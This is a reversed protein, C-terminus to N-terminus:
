TSMREVSLRRGLLGVGGGELVGSVMLGGTEEFTGEKRGGRGGGRGGSSDGRRRGGRGVRRGEGLGEGLGDAPHVPHATHCGFPELPRWPSLDLTSAVFFIALDM